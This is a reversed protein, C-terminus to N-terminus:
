EPRGQRGHWVRFVVIQTPEIQYDVLYATRNIRFSYRRTEGDRLFRYAQPRASIRREALLLRSMFAEAAASSHELFRAHLRAVDSEAEPAYVLTM